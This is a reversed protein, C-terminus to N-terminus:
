RADGWAEWARVRMFLDLLLRKLSREGEETLGSTAKPDDPRVFVPLRAFDLPARLEAPPEAKVAVPVKVEIVSEHACGHLSFLAAALVLYGAWIPVWSILPRINRAVM